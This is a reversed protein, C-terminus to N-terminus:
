GKAPASSPRKTACWLRIDARTLLYFVWAQPLCALLSMAWRSADFGLANGLASIAFFIALPLRAFRPCVVLALVFAFHVLMVYLWVPWGHRLFWGVLGAYGLLSALLLWYAMPPRIDEPIERM